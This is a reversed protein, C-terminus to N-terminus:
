NQREGIYLFLKRPDSEIVKIARFGATEADSMFKRLNYRTHAIFWDPEEEIVRKENRETFRDRVLDNLEKESMEGFDFNYDVGFLPAGPKLLSHMRQMTELPSPNVSFEHIAFFLSASDYFDASNEKLYGEPSSSFILNEPKSNKNKVKTMFRTIFDANDFYVVEGKKERSIHALHKSFRLHEEKGHGIDLHLRLEPNKWYTEIERNFKALALKNDVSLGFSIKEILGM